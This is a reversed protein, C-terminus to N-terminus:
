LRPRRDRQRANRVPRHRGHRRRDGHHASPPRGGTVHVIPGGPPTSSPTAAGGGDGAAGARLGTRVLPVVAEVSGRPRGDYEFVARLRGDGPPPQASVHASFTESESIPTDRRLTLTRSPEDVTLHPSAAIWVDLTIEDLGEPLEVEVPTVVQGEYAPQDDCFVDFTFMAGPAQPAGDTALDIHPVRRLTSRSPPPKPGTVAPGTPEFREPLRPEARRCGYVGFQGRIRRPFPSRPRQTERVIEVGEPIETRWVWVGGEREVAPGSPRQGPRISEAAPVRLLQARVREVLEDDGEGLGALLDPLGKAGFVWPGRGGSAVRLVYATVDQRPPRHGIARVVDGVAPGTVVEVQHAPVFVVARSRDTSM